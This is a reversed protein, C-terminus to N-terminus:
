EQGGGGELWRRVDRCVAFFEPKHRLEPDGFTPNPLIHRIAAREMVVITQGLFVAEEISHTVFVLTVPHKQFLALIRDQIQERTIADLSSSAEDLLLLDPELVLTRAIAIRQKQGGSLQDPYKDGHEPLDLEELISDVAKDISAKSFGRAKLGLAVNERATKWPFLGGNQLILGTARRVTGLEEGAIRVSGSTPTVLGAMAYLLSTKGCGSPGIIACSTDRPIDLDIGRLATETGYRIELNRLEIM